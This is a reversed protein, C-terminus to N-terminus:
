LGIGSSTDRLSIRIYRASIPTTFTKSFSYIQVTGSGTSLAPVSITTFSVNDTSYDVILTPTGEYALSYSISYVNQVSGLDHRACVSVNSGALTGGVVECPSNGFFAQLDSLTNGSDTTFGSTAQFANIKYQAAM